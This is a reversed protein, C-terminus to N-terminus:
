ACNKHATAAILRPDEGSLACRLTQKSDEMQDRIDRLVTRYAETSISTYGGWRDGDELAVVLDAYHAELGEYADKSNDAFSRASEFWPNIDKQLLHQLKKPDWAFCYTEQGVVSTQQPLFPLVGFIPKVQLCKRSWDEWEGEFKAAALDRAEAVEDLAVILISAKETLSELKPRHHEAFEWFDHMLGGLPTYRHLGPIWSWFGILTSTVGAQENLRKDITDILIEVDRAMSQIFTKHSTFLNNVLDHAMRHKRGYTSTREHLEEGHVLKTQWAQTRAVLRAVDSSMNAATKRPLALDHEPIDWGTMAVVSSPDEGFPNSPMKPPTSNGLQCIDPVGFVPSSVWPTARYLGFSCASNLAGHAAFGAANFCALLALVLLVIGLAVGGFMPLCYFVLFRMLVWLPSMSASLWVKFRRIMARDPLDPTPAEGGSVPVTPTSTSPQALGLSQRERSLILGERNTNLM